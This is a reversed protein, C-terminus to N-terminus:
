CDRLEEVLVASADLSREREITAVVGAAEAILKQRDERRPTSVFGQALEVHGVRTMCPVSSGNTVGLPPSCVASTIAPESSMMNSPM